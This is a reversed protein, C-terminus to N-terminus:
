RKLLYLRAPDRLPLWDPGRIHSKVRTVRAGCVACRPSIGKDTKAQHGKKFLEEDYSEIHRWFSGVVWCCSWDVDRHQVV